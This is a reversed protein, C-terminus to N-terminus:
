SRSVMLPALSCSCSSSLCSTNTLLLARTSGERGAIGQLIVFCMGSPHVDGHSWLSTGVRLPLVKAVDPHFLVLASLVVSELCM